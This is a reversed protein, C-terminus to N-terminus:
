SALEERDAATKRSELKKRTRRAYESKYGRLRAPDNWFVFQGFSRIEDVAEKLHTYAQNRIKLAHSCYARETTVAGLLAAMESATAAATDLKAMDFNIRKLADPDGKGIVSLDNLNQIMGPYTGTKKVASLKVKMSLNRTSAFKLSRLIDDRLNVAVPAQKMWTKEAAEHSSRAAIWRSQAERLAGERAPIDDVFSWQLGNATLIERDAASWNYLNRAEQLYVTVPINGPKLISSDPISSIVQLKQEYYQQTM